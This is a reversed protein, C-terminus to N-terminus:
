FIDSQDNLLDAHNIEVGRALTYSSILVPTRTRYVYMKRYVPTSNYVPSFCGNVLREEVTIPSM